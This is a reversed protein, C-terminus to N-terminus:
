KRKLSIRRSGGKGFAKEDFVKIEDLQIKYIKSEFLKDHFRKPNGVLKLSSPFREIYLIGAKILERSNVPMAIGTAQLGQLLSGWKQRSDFINVSVKKNKRLNKSHTTKEESWTYLNMDKDFAYFATNSHPENSKATSLTLLHNRRLINNVCDAIKKEEKDM